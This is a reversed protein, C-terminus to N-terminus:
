EYFNLKHRVSLVTKTWEVSWKTPPKSHFVATVTATITPVCHTHTHTHTHPATPPPFTCLSLSLPRPSHASLSLSHTHTHTHTCNDGHKLFSDSSPGRNARPLVFKVYCTKLHKAQERLADTLKWMDTQRDTTRKVNILGAAAPRIKM